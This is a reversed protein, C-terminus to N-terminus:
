FCVACGVLLLLCHYHRNEWHLEILENRTERSFLMNKVKMMDLKFKSEDHGVQILQSITTKSFDFTM